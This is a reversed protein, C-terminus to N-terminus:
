GSPDDTAVQGLLQVLRRREAETMTPWNSLREQVYRVDHPLEDHGSGMRTFYTAISGTVMGLTGIGALMLVSAIVRGPADEPAIDGYGVTTTTVLAWWVGDGYTPIDDEIMWVAAGGLLILGSVFALVYRLGNQRLVGLVPDGVREFLRFARILRVLRLLRITRFPRFLEFPVLAVLDPWNRRPFSRRDPSVAFRVGVDLLFIAYIVCNLAFAWPADSFLTAVTAVALVGM